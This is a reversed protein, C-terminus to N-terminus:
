AVTAAKQAAKVMDSVAITCGATQLSDVGYGTELALAAIETATKGVLAADFAAGQEFWEKVTGDGNLDAGYQAMGYGAGLEKKSKIESNVEVATVGAADFTIKSQVVDSSAVVVKKDKNLATAVITTDVGNTGAAEATADKISQVSVMAVQLTDDKTAASDAANAVAKEVAKVFEAITITCGANIVEDTGKDGTAVLAKVQDITKGVVVTEFADAQEFWEKPAQGYAKMGYADGLEYKTKFEGAEVCKGDATFAVKNQITDLTCKVIKGDKDLLVAAATVDTEGAGEAESTASTAKAVYAYVGLGFKLTEVTNNGNDNNQDDAPKEATCGVLAFLMLAALLLSLIRKM